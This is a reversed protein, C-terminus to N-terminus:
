FSLTFTSGEGEATQLSIQGKHLHMIQRCLSLGVGSGHEKTTFFPVFINEAVEPSIGEGNDRIAIFIRGAENQWSKLEIQADPKAKVADIGNLILNILAQELLEPDANIQLNPQHNQALEVHNDQLQVALLTVVQNCISEPEILQFKPQYSQTISKYAKVFNVLGSSRKEITQLGQKLDEIHEPQMDEELMDQIVSSLTSIPIVSNMIEHTLVRILKQWAEVEQQELEDKINQFSVLKYSIDLLKFETARVVLTMQENIKVLERQGIQIQEIKKFLAPSFSELSNLQHLYPKHFLKQAARNFLMVEGNKDFCLLAVAVHEVVTQLYRFSSERESRLDTFTQNLDALVPQLSNHAKAAVAQYTNSFDHQAAAVLFQRLERYGKEIYRIFLVTLAIWALGMWLAVLWFYTELAVYVTAYGLALLLLLRLVVQFRFHKYFSLQSM